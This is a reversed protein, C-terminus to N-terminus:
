FCVLRHSFIFYGLYDWGFLGFLFIMERLICILEATIVAKSLVIFEHGKHVSHMFTSMTNMYVFM